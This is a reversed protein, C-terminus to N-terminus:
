NNFLFLDATYREIPSTNLFWIIYKIAKKEKKKKVSCIANIFSIQVMELIMFSFKVM